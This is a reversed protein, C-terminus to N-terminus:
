PHHHKGDKDSQVEPLPYRDREALLAETARWLTFLSLLGPDLDVHVLGDVLFLRSQQHGVACALSSSESFPIIDDDYGHMLLLRAKLPALNKNSLDLAAIDAQIGAPLQQLLQPAQQPDRNSIFAYVREGEPSLQAALDVLPAEPDATRRQVMQRLLRRDGANELRPLNSKVFVWKGYENPQRYRWADGDCFWGTTAYTLVRPLDYYGGVALIFRVQRRLEPRLAALITPGVAYSFAVIGPRGAPSLAPQAALWAFSDAVEDINGPHVRQQRLSPLEPVLVALGVRALSTAFAVLRPDDRGAEAAGPILLVGAKVAAAPRYIDGRYDRGAVTLAVQQRTPAPTTRKLWSPETGAAFDGLLLLAQRDRASMCGSALLAALLLACLPLWRRM